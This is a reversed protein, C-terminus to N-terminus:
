AGPAKRRAARVATARVREWGSLDAGRLPDDGALFRDLWGLDDYGWFLEGDVVATPVGFVGEAFARETAARLAGKVRPDGAAEVLRAGDFGAGDVARAVAEPSTADVSEGWIARFLADILPRVGGADRGDFAAVTVRLALLPNFPHSAPPAFPLGREAAKRACNRMMWRRMPEVEAPGVRDGADLLAGFVIPVPEVARGHRAALDHIAAWGLYANPSIYDFHFRIAGAGAHM